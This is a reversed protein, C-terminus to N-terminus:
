PTPILRRLQGTQALIAFRDPVGWHEVIRGDVVRAIDIVTLHVPAGTPPGIFPGTQTATAEARVWVTDGDQTWDGVTFRIDPMARHVETIGRKVKDIAERGQGSMGFQHEVMDPACLEDVIATNGTAFGELLMRELVRVAAPMARQDSM